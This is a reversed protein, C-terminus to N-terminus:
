DEQKQKRRDIYRSVASTLIISLDTNEATVTQVFETYLDVPILESLKQGPYDLDRQILQRIYGNIPKGMDACHTAIRDYESIRVGLPIRKYEKAKYKATAKKQTESYPM